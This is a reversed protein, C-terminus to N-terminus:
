IEWRFVTKFDTDMDVSFVRHIDAIDKVAETEYIITRLRRQIKKDQLFSVANEFDERGSRSCGVFILGKELIDRTNIPVKSESVGMLVVTGQPNIYRIMDDIAYYSGDGGACEFGHDITFKENLEDVLFLEDAFSFQHLKNINRGIVCIKSEPYKRKLISSVIFALSGDGWIGIREKSKRALLEFRSVAHMGVSVFETIAAIRKDIEGYRVLRDPPLDVLERMFGDKGSSLFGGGTYNEYVEGNFNEGPVNPIMVVNEGPKFTGTPDHLVKGCAEHILAMPLKKRLIKVDRKGQYYRQDAHCVAMYEPKVIVRSDCDIEEYKVSITKPNILQYVYNLM